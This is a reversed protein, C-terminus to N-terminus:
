HMMVSEDKQIAIIVSIVNLTDDTESFVGCSPCCWAWAHGITLQLSSNHRNILGGIYNYLQIISKTCTSM